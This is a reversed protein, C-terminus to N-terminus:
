SRKRIQARRDTPTKRPREGPERIVPIKLDSYMRRFVDMSGVYHVIKAWQLHTFRRGRKEFIEKYCLLNARMRDSGPPAYTFLNKGKFFKVAEAIERIKGDDRKVIADLFIDCLQQAHDAIYSEEAKRMEQYLSQAEPDSGSLAAALRLQREPNQWIEIESLYLNLLAEIESYVRGRRALQEAAFTDQAALQKIKGPLKV